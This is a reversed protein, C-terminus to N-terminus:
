VLFSVCNGIEKALYILYPRWCRIPFTIFSLHLLLSRELSNMTDISSLYQTIASLVQHPLSIFVWSSEGPATHQHYITMQRLSWPRCDDSGGNLDVYRLTYTSEIRVEPMLHARQETMQWECRPPAIELEQFRRGMFAINDKFAEFIGVELCLREFTKQTVDLRSRSNWGNKIHFM